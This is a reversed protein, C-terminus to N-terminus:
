SFFLRTSPTPVSLTLKDLSMKLDADSFCLVDTNTGVGGYPCLLGKSPWHLHTPSPTWCGPVQQLLDHISRYDRVGSLVLV